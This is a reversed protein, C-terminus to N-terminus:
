EQERSWNQFFATTLMLVSLLPTVFFFATAVLLLLPTLRILILPPAENLDSLVPALEVDRPLEEADKFCFRSALIERDFVPRKSVPKVPCAVVHGRGIRQQHAGFPNKGIDCVDIGPGIAILRVGGAREM